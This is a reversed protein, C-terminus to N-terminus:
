SRMNFMGSLSMDGRANPPIPKPQGPRPQTKQMTLQDSAAEPISAYKILDCVNNLDLERKAARQFALISLADLRRASQSPHPLV